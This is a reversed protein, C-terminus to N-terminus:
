PKVPSNPISVAGKAAYTGYVHCIRLSPPHNLSSFSNGPSVSNSYILFHIVRIHATHAQIVFRVSTEPRQAGPPHLRASTDAWIYAVSFVLTRATHEDSLLLGRKTSPTRRRAEKKKKATIPEATYM